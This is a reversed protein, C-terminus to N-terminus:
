TTQEWPLHELVIIIILAQQQKGIGMKKKKDCNIIWISNNPVTYSNM